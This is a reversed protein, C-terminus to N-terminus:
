SVRGKIPSPIKNCHNRSVSVPRLGSCIFSPCVREGTKLIYNEEMQRDVGLDQWNDRGKPNELQFVGQIHKRGTSDCEYLVFFFIIKYM